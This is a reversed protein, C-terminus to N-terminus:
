SFKELLGGNHVRIKELDIKESPVEIKGGYFDDLAKEMLKLRAYKSMPSFIIKELLKEVKDM